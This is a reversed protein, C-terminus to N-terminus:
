VAEIMSSGSKKPQSNVSPAPAAAKQRKNMMQSMLKLKEMQPNKGLSSEAADKRETAPIYGGPLKQEQDIKPETIFSSSKGATSGTTINKRKSEKKTEEVFNKAEKVIDLTVGQTSRRSERRKKAKNKQEVNTLQNPVPQSM